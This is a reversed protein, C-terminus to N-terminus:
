KLLVMKQAASFEGAQLRLLYLGSSLSSGDFTAKHEGAEHWGDVLTAVLRGATDYIKLSIHSAARLEYSIATTPNFPNPYAGWLRFSTPQLPVAQQAGTAEFNEGSNSWGSLGQGQSDGELKVFTFADSSTTPGVVAYANYHYLGPPASGPINQIRVRSISINASMNITIPGLVPGYIQGSPLTIDCHITTLQSTNSSNTGMIQYNFGGGNAPIQIPASYPTLIIRVPMNQPYYYCGMDARTSDPDNYISAPDGSDICPSGWTLRYDDHATDVFAPYTFINGTGPWFEQLNSYTVNVSSGIGLYLMPNAMANNAWITGNKINITSNLLYFSGGNNAINGYFTNKNMPTTLVYGDSYIGGGLGSTGLARNDSIENMEIIPHSENVCCIGGGWGIGGWGMASDAHIVNGHILPSSDSCYIGGGKMARNGILENNSIIGTSSEFSISGGYGDASNKYINNETISVNTASNCWIGGYSQGHNYQILNNRIIYNQGGEYCSIGGGANDSIYNNEIVISDTNVTNLIGIGATITDMSTNTIINNSILGRGNLYIGARLNNSMTNGNITYNGNSAWIGGISNTISNSNIIFNGSTYISMLFNPWSPVTYNNIVNNIISGSSNSCYIDHYNARNNNSTNWALELVFCNGCYISSGTTASCSDFTCNRVKITTSQCYIAGGKSDEGSGTAIGKSFKCYKLSCAPSANNFRIGHWGAAFQPTFTISDGPAGLAKLTAGPHVSFKYHGWFVVHVGAQIVLSQNTPVYISDTVYYTNGAATWVGTVPGAVYTDALCAYSFVAIIIAAFFTSILRNM